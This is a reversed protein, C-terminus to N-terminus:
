ATVTELKGQKRPARCILACGYSLQFTNSDDTKAMDDVTFDRIVALEWHGPSMDLMAIETDVFDPIGVWPIGNFTIGSELYGYDVGSAGAGADKRFLSVNTSTGVQLQLNVYNTIQNYPSLILSPRAGRDNDRLEEWLDQLQALTLVGGVANVESQLQTYTARSLGYYATTDDDVIGLIGTAADAMLTTNVLDRLALAAAQMEYALQMPGLATGMAADRAHGTIQPIVRFYTWPASAQVWGVQGSVGLAAGETFTSASGNGTVAIPFRYSDGAGRTVPFLPAFYDNYFVPSAMPGYIRQLESALLTTTTAAM